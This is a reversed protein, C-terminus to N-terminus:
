DDFFGRFRGADLATYIVTSNISRHGLYHQISRTDRGDNALKFGCAHRLSHPNVRALRRLMKRFGAPSLPTMRESLFVYGHDPWERRLQRLARIESGTLPHTSPTGGKARRVHIRGADLEIQDWRLACLESVRLGHRYALLIMAADRAGWRNRKAQAILQEVEKETRYKRVTGSEANPPREAKPSKM